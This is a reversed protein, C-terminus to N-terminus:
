KKTIRQHEQITLLKKELTNIYKKLSNLEAQQQAIISDREGNEQSLVQIVSELKFKTMDMSATKETSISKNRSLREEENQCKMTFDPNINADSLLKKKEYGVGEVKDVTIENYFKQSLRSKITELSLRKIDRISNCFKLFPEELRKQIMQDILVIAYLNRNKKWEISKTPIMLTKVWSNIKLQDGKGFNDIRDYIEQMLGLFEIDYLTIDSM